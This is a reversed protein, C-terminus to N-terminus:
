CIVSMVQAYILGGPRTRKPGEAIEVFELGDDGTMIRFDELRLGRHHEQKGRLGFQQTLLRWM